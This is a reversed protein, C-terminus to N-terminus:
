LFAHLYRDRGKSGLYRVQQHEFLQRRQLRNEEHKKQLMKREDDTENAKSEHNAHELLTELKNIDMENSDDKESSKGKVQHILTDFTQQTDQAFNTLFYGVAYTYKLVRRCAIVEQVAQHLFQYDTIM